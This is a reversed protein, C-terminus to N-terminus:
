QKPSLAALHIWSLALPLRTTMANVVLSPWGTSDTSDLTSQAFDFQLIRRGMDCLLVCLTGPTERLFDHIHPSWHCRPTPITPLRHHQDGSDLRSAATGTSCLFNSLSPATVIYILAPCRVRSRRRCEGRATRPLPTMDCRMAVATRM